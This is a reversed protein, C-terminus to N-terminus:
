VIIDHAQFSFHPIVVVDRVSDLLRARRRRAGDKTITNKQVECRTLETVIGRVVSLGRVGERILQLGGRAPFTASITHTQGGCTRM